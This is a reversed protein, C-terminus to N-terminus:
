QSTENLTDELDMWSMACTLHSKKKVSLVQGKPWEQFVLNAKVLQTTGVAGEAITSSPFCSEEGPQMGRDRGREATGM